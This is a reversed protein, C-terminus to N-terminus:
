NNEHTKRTRERATKKQQIVTEMFYPRLPSPHQMRRTDNTVALVDVGPRDYCQLTWTLTVRAQGQNRRSIREMMWHTKGPKKLIPYQRNNERTADTQRQVRRKRMAVGVGGIVHQHTFPQSGCIPTRDISQNIQNIM